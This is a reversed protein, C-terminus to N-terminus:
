CRLLPGLKMSFYNFRSYDKINYRSLHVFFVTFLSLLLSIFRISSTIPILPISARRQMLPNWNAKTPRPM